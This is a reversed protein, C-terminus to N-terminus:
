ANEINPNYNCPAYDMYRMTTELKTHGLYHMIEVPPVGAKGLRVAFTRRFDHWGWIEPMKEQLYDMWRQWSSKTYPMGNKRRFIYGEKEARSGFVEIIKHHLPITRSRNTKPRWTNLIKGCFDFQTWKIIQIENDTLGSKAALLIPEYLTWGPATRIGAAIRCAKDIQEDTLFHPLDRKRKGPNRVHDCPNETLEGAQFLYHCFQNIAARCCCLVSFSYGKALLGNLYLQITKADIQIVNFICQTEFFRRLHSMKRDITEPQLHPLSVAIFENILLQLRDTPAAQNAPVTM